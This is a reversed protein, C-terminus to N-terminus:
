KEFAFAVQHEDDLILRANFKKGSKSVMGKLVNTTRNKVLNEIEAAPLITGCVKRFQLWGCQEAPCKVVKDSIHLHHEGCKPCLLEPVAENKVPAKLLEDTINKTYAEIESQFKESSFTGQEISALAIEWEATMVASGIRM